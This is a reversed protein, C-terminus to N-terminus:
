SKLVNTTFIKADRTRQQKYKSTALKWTVSVYTYKVGHGWNVTFKNLIHNFIIYMNHTM